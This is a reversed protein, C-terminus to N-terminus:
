TTVRKAETNGGKIRTSSSAGIAPRRTSRTHDCPLCRRIANEPPSTNRVWMRM